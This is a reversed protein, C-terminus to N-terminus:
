DSGSLCEARTKSRPSRRRGSRDADGYQHREVAIYDGPAGPPASYLYSGLSPMNTPFQKPLFTSNIQLRNAGSVVRNGPAVLDPKVFRDIATPGKSSYSAMLDDTRSATGMDRTAGVTIVFPDNGPSGITGYGNTNLSNNRGQNGAAVVVVIGARWARRVAACLPDKTASEKVARGLSLNIVRINYQAKLEIARDLAAIVASDTGQGSADLVRLNIISARPAIGTFFRTQKMFSYQKLMAQTACKGNGALITAVHTGHGFRDTTTATDGVVFSESYAVRSGGCNGGKLDAHADVGSDIVAIGIDMGDFGAKQAVDAYVAPGAYEMTAGVQRDPSIYQIRSSRALEAIADRTLRASVAGVLPFERIPRSSHIGAPLTFAPRRRATTSPEETDNLQIIVDVADPGDVALLDPALKSQPQACLTLLSAGLLLLWSDAQSPLIRRFM